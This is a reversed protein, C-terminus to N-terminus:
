INKFWNEMTELEIDYDSVFPFLFRVVLLKFIKFWPYITVVVHVINQETLFFFAYLLVTCSLNKDGISNKIIAM